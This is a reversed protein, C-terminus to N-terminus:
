SQFETIGLLPEGAGATHTLNAEPLNAMTTKIPYLLRIPEIGSKLGDAAPWVDETIRDTSRM